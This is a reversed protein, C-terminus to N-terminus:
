RKALPAHDANRWHQWYHANRWHQTVCGGRCITFTICLSQKTRLLDGQLQQQMCCAETCRKGAAACVLQTRTTGQATPRYPWSSCALRSPYHKTHPPQPKTGSRPMDRSGSGLCRICSSHTTADEDLSDYACLIAPPQWGSHRLCAPRLSRDQLLLLLRQQLLRPLPPGLITNRLILHEQTSLNCLRSTCAECTRM